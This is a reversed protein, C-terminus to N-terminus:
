AYSIVLHSSNLRTSKRDRKSAAKKTRSRRPLVGRRRTRLVAARSKRRERCNRSGSACRAQFGGEEDEIASSSRRTEEDETRRRAIESARPLKQLRERM